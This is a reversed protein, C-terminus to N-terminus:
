RRTQRAHRSRSGVSEVRQPINTILCAFSSIDDGNRDDQDGRMSFFSLLVLLLGFRPGFRRGGLEREDGRMGMGRKM